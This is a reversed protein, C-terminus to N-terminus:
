CIQLRRETHWPMSDAAFVGRSCMVQGISLAIFLHPSLRYGDAGGSVVPSKQTSADGGEQRWAAIEAAEVETFERSTDIKKHKSSKSRKSHKKSSKSKKHSSSKHSKKSKSQKRDSKHSRRRRGSSESSSSSSSKSTSSSSSDSSSSRSRSRSRSRRRKTEHRSRGRDASRPKKDSRHLSHRDSSHEKVLASSAPTRSDAM